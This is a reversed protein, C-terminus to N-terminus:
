AFFKVYVAYGSILLQSLTLALCIAAFGLKHNKRFHCFGWFPVAPIAAAYLIMLAEM